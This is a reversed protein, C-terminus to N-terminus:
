TEGLSCKGNENCFHIFILTEYNYISLVPVTERNLTEQSVSGSHKGCCVCGVCDGYLCKPVKQTDNDTDRYIQVPTRVSAMSALSLAMCM